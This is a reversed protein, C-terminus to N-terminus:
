RALLPSVHHYINLFAAHHDAATRKPPAAPDIIQFLAELTAQNRFEVRQAPQLTRLLQQRSLRDIDGMTDGPKHSCWPIDVPTRLRIWTFVMFIHQTQSSKMRNKDVWSLASTNDGYWHLHIPGDPLLGTAQADLALILGLVAGCYERTNQYRPDQTAEDWGITAFDTYCICQTFDVVRDPSMRFLAIGVCEPGADTVLAYSAITGVTPVLHRLPMALDDPRLALICAVARWVEVCFRASSTAERPSDSSGRLIDNLPQVFMSM